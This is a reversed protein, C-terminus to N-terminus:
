YLTNNSKIDIADIKMQNFESDSGPVVDENKQHHEPSEVERDNNKPLRTPKLDM